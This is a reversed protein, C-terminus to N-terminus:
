RTKQLQETLDAIDELIVDPTVPHNEAEKRTSVGSLVMITKMGVAHGGEIDTGLRDGVM